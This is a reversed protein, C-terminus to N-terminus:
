DRFRIALRNVWGQYEPLTVHDQQGGVGAPWPDLVLLKFSNGAGEYGYAVYYHISNGVVLIRDNDIEQRVTAEDLSDIFRGGTADQDLVGWQSQVLRVVQSSLNAGGNELQPPVSSEDMASALQWQEQLAPDVEALASTFARAIEYQTPVALGFYRRVMQEAAAFCWAGTEQPVLTPPKKVTRM